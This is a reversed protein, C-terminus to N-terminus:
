CLFQIIVAMIVYYHWCDFLGYFHHRVGLFSHSDFILLKTGFYNALAKTLMEQYIESGANVNSPFAWNQLKISSIISVLIVFCVWMGAPGSLLIRPNVTTLESTYKAHEKHKLHIISAAILVNKTNESSLYFNM